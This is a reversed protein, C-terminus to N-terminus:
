MLRKVTKTPMADMPNDPWYHKPYRGKMEKQVHSYAGQWFAVLDQTIQLPRHAPSLLEIQVAVKGNAVTPTERQGFMEQIRVSLVPPRGLEYRLRIKSGTPAIFNTPITNELAQQAEWSLLSNFIESFNLKKLEDLRSMGNLYPLLWTEMSDILTAECCDPWDGEPLWERVCQLRALLGQADENLPLTRFGNLRIGELLCHAKQEANLQDVPMRQLVIEGLRQQKEARVRQEKQDWGLWLKESFLEPLDHKLRALDVSEATFIRLGVDSLQMHVAVIVERGQCMHDPLLDARQGNALQYRHGQSCVAIRDPWALAALLEAHQNQFEPLTRKPHFRQWWRQATARLSRAFRQLQVSLPDQSLQRDDQLAILYCAEALLGSEGQQDLDAAAVMLHGFRPETPLAAIRQGQATLKGEHLIHLQALLARASALAATPPLDLFPLLEPTTGWLASEMLLSSLDSRLIEPPAQEELREQQEQPWLRYCVGPGLRGARGARQVSSAKSIQRTELKAVGSKLDFSSRRELGSDVVVSIGEITLSTEAVNTALVVKRAGDSCPRIAMQQDSFALRGHLPAILVSADVRTQLWEALREIEGAGPLFVLLSGQQQRLADLVATGWQPILPQQRSVSQYVYEIPFTRGPCHTIQADPLLNTLPLGDLTASMVMIKLDPRLASQSELAFALATDAQLSREHFEDFILLDVDTLEPDQQLMRTLIGETVIELRTQASIKSEGRIRYGVSQGLPEGLQEALFGAINRAALRRPELMIIKGSIPLHQLLHLPVATSKGAGPSAQLIIQNADTCQQTIQPLFEHIPLSLPLSWM